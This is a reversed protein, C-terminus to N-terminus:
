NAALAGAAQGVIFRDPHRLLQRLRVVDDPLTQAAIRAAEQQILPNDDGLGEILVSQVAAPDFRGVIAAARFRYIGNRDTLLPRVSEEAERPLVTVLAEAATLRFDAIDSTLMARAEALAADDGNRARALIVSTRVFPDPERSLSELLQAAEPDRSRALAEAVAAKNMPVRDKALKQLLTPTLGQHEALARIAVSLDRGTSSDVFTQLTAVAETDGRAVLAMTARANGAASRKRLAEIAADDGSKALFELATTAILPDRDTSLARLFGAAISELLGRDDLNRGAKPIWAEYADLAALPQTGGSLAEIKLVFASHSRPKKKLLSDAASIAETLRGAALAAWGRSLVQADTAPRAIQAAAMSSTILIIIVVPPAAFRMERMM